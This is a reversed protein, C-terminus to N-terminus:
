RLSWDLTRDLLDPRVSWRVTTPRDQPGVLFVTWGDAVGGPVVGVRHAPYGAVSIPAKPLTRGSADSLVLYLDPMCDHPAPGANEVRTHVLLAREDPDLVYGASTLIQQAPDIVELVTVGLREGALGTTSRTSGVAWPQEPEPRSDGPPASSPERRTWASSGPVGWTAAPDAGATSPTAAPAQQSSPASAPPQHASRLGPTPGVPGRQVVRWLLNPDGEVALRLPFGSEALQILRTAAESTSIGAQWAAQPLGLAGHARCLEDLLRIDIADPLPRTPGPAAPSGAGPPSSTM